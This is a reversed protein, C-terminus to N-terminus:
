RVVAELVRSAERPNANERLTEETQIVLSAHFQRLVKELTELSFDARGALIKSLQGQDIGTEQCFKYRSGYKEDILAVLYDRYDPPATKGQAIGLRAELDACIRYLVSQRDIRRDTVEKIWWAAFRTWDALQRYRKLVTRLIHREDESLDSLQISRGTLTRYVKRIKEM